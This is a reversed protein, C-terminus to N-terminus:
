QKEANISVGARVGLTSPRELQEACNDEAEVHVAILDAGAKAYAEIYQMPRSLM